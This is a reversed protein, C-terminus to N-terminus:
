VPPAGAASGARRAPNGEPCPHRAPAVPDRAPGRQRGPRRVPARVTRTLAGLVIATRKFLNRM